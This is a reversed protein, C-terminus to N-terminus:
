SRWIRGGRDAGLGGGLLSRGDGTQMGVWKSLHAEQMEQLCDTRRDATTPCVACRERKGFAEVGLESNIQSFM